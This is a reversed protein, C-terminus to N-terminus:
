EKQWLECLLVLDDGSAGASVRYATDREDFGIEEFRQEIRETTVREADDDGLAERLAIWVRGREGADVRVPHGAFDDGLTAELIKAVREVEPQPIPTHEQDEDTM